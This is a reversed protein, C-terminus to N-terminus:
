HTINIHSKCTTAAVGDGRTEQAMEVSDGDILEVILSHLGDKALDHVPM